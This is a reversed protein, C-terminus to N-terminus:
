AAAGAAPPASRTSRASRRRRSRPMSRTRHPSRSASQPDDPSTQIATCGTGCSPTTSASADPTTSPGCGGSPPSPHCRRDRRRSGPVRPHPGVGRGREGLRELQVAVRRRLEALAVLHRHVLRARDPREIRPRGAAAPELVEEPEDAALGVLPIRGQVLARRRHLRPACGPLAVVERLVEGVPGARPHALLLRQQRVLREEHVERGARRVGRVLRRRLPDLPIPTAEIGAPVRQPRLDEFLLLREAHDWGIGLEGSSRRLDRRPVVHRLVQLRHQSTLHLHVGPEHRVGVVVHAAQDVRDLVEADEVVGEDEVDDAVVPCRGLAGHVAREVLPQHEVARGANSVTSNM